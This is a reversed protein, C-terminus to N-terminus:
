QQIEEVLQQTKLIVVLDEKSFKRKERFSELLKYVQAVKNKMSDDAQFEEINM